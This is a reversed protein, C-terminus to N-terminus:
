QGARHSLPIKDFRYGRPAWKRLTAINAAVSKYMVTLDVMVQDARQVFLRVFEDGRAADRYWLYEERLLRSFIM